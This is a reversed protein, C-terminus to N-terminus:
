WKILYCHWNRRRKVRIAVDLDGGWKMRGCWKIVSWRDDKLICPPLTSGSRTHCKTSENSKVFSSNSFFYFFLLFFYTVVLSQDLNSKSSCSSSCACNKHHPHFTQHPDFYFNVRVIAKDLTISSEAAAEATTRREKKKAMLSRMSPKWFQILLSLQIGGELSRHAHIFTKKGRKVKVLTWDESSGSHTTADDEEEENKKERWEGSTVPGLTLQSLKEKFLFEYDVQSESSLASSIWKRQFVNYSCLLLRLLVLTLSFYFDVGM